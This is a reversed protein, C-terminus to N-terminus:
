RDRPVLRELEEFWNLVLRASTYTPRSTEDWELMLFRGDPAIDYSRNMISLAFRGRFLEHPTGASLDSAVTFDAAMMAHEGRAVAQKMYFLEDGNASWTPM